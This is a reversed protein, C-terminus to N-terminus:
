PASQPPWMKCIEGRALVECRGDSSLCADQDPDQMQDIQQMAGQSQLQYPCLHLHCLSEALLSAIDWCRCGMGSRYVKSQHEAVQDDERAQSKSGPGCLERQLFCQHPRSSCRLEQSM